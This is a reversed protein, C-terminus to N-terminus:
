VPIPDARGSSRVFVSKLHNEAQQLESLSEESAKSATDITELTGAIERLTQSIREVVVGFARGAEGARAAEITGNM